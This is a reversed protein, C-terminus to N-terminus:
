GVGLAQVRALADAHIADMKARTDAIIAIIQPTTAKSPNLGDIATNLLGDMASQWAIYATQVQTRTTM